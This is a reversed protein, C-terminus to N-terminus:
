KSGTSSSLVTSALRTLLTEITPSAKALGIRRASSASGVRQSMVDSRTMKLLPTIQAASVLAPRRRWLWRSIMTSARPLLSAIPMALLVTVASDDLVVALKRAAGPV